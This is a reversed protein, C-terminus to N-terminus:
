GRPIGRHVLARCVFILRREGELARPTGPYAILLEEVAFGAAEFSAAYEGASRIRLRHEVVFASSRGGSRVTFEQRMRWVQEHDEYRHSEVVEVTGSPAAFVRRHPPVPGAGLTGPYDFVDAILAAGARLVRRLSYLASQLEANTHLYALPSELCLSAAFSENAFPLAALDAQVLLRPPAPNARAQRLMPRSVDVGVVRHGREALALVHRGTGCGADLIAAPPAPCRAQIFALQAALFPDDPPAAYIIDYVAAFGSNPDPPEAM